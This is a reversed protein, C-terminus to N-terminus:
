AARHLGGWDGARVTAGGGGRRTTHANNYDNVLLLGGATLRPYFWQLAAYTPQYLGVDVNVLCFTQRRLRQGLRPVLRGPIRGEPYPL